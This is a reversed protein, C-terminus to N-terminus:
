LPIEKGIEPPFHPVSAGRGHKSTSLRSPASAWSSGNPLASLFPLLPSLLIHLQPAPAVAALQEPDSNILDTQCTDFQRRFVSSAIVPLHMCQLQVSSAEVQERERACKGKEQHKPPPASITLNVLNRQGASLVYPVRGGALASGSM